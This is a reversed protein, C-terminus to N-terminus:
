RLFFLITDQFLNFLTILTILIALIIFIINAARSESQAFYRGCLIATNIICFVFVPNFCQPQLAIFLFAAIGIIIVIDYTIRIRTKDLYSTSIFNFLGILFVIFSFALMLWQSLSVVSYDPIQLNALQLFPMLFLTLGDMQVLSYFFLFWYPTSLGVISAWFARYSFSRLHIQCIWFVPILFLIKPFFLSSLSCLLYFIFTPLVANSLQYTSFLSFYAIIVVPAIITSPQIPYLFVSAITLVTFLSSIMRSRIRLLVFSTNLEALLYISFALLGIRIAFQIWRESILRLPLLGWLGSEEGVYNDVPLTQVIMVVVAVVCVTPLTLKSTAVLKLFYRM